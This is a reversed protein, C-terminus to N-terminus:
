IKGVVALQPKAAPEVTASCYVLHRLVHSVRKDRTYQPEHVTALAAMYFKDALTLM